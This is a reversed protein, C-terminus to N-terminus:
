KFVPCEFKKICAVKKMENKRDWKEVTKLLLQCKVKQGMILYTNNLNSLQPCPCRAGSKYTTKLLIKIDKKMLKGWPKLFDKIKAGLLKSDGCKKTSIEKICRKIVYDSCSLQRMLTACKKEMECPPCVKVDEPELTNIFQPSICLDNDVPFKDCHLSEPWTFGYAKMLPACGSRVAECVSRCPYIPSDLPWCIPAFLCCLFIRADPSCEKNLLPVWRWEQQLVEAMQEHELHNPIRMECYGIDYCLAMSKPIRMCPAAQVGLYHLWCLAAAVLPIGHPPSDM